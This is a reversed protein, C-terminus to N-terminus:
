MSTKGAMQKQLITNFDSIVSSVRKSIARYDCEMTKTNIVPLLTLAFVYWFLFIITKMLKRATSYSCSVHVIMMSTKLFYLICEKMVFNNQEHHQWKKELNGLQWFEFLITLNKTWKLSVKLFEENKNYIRM